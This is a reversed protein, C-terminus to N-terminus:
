IARNFYTPLYQQWCHRNPWFWGNLWNWFLHLNGKFVIFLSLYKVYSWGANEVKLNVLNLIFKERGSQTWWVYLITAVSSASSLDQCTHRPTQEEQEIMWVAAYFCRSGQEWRSGGVGRLPHYCSLLCCVVRVWNLWKCLRHHDWLESRVSFMLCVHYLAM